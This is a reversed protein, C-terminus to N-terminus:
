AQRGSDASARTERCDITEGSSSVTCKEIVDTTVGELLLLESSIRSNGWPHFGCSWDEFLVRRLGLSNLLETITPNLELDIERKLRDIESKAYIRRQVAATLLERTDADVDLDAIQQPTPTFKRRPM